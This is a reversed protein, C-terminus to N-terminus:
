VECFSISHFSVLFTNYRLTLSVSCERRRKVVLKRGLNWIQMKYSSFCLVTLPGFPVHEFHINGLPNAFDKKEPTGRPKVFHYPFHITIVKTSRQFVRPLERLHMVKTEAKRPATVM